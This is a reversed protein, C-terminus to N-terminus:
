PNLFIIKCRSDGAKEIALHQIALDRAQENNDIRSGEALQTPV